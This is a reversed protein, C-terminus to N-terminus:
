VPMLDKLEDDLTLHGNSAIVKNPDATTDLAAMLEPTGSIDPRIVELGGNGDQFIWDRVPSRKGSRRDRQSLGGLIGEYGCGTEVGLLSLADRQADAGTTTGILAADVWNAVGAAVLEMADQSALCVRLNVKRSDRCVREIFAKGSDVLTLAWAEDLMLMKRANPETSYISRTALSAALRLQVVAFREATTWDQRKSGKQPLAIGAMTIVTLLPESGTEPPVYGDEPFILRALPSKARGSLVEAIDSAHEANSGEVHRLAEIVALPNTTQLGRISRVAKGVVVLTSPLDALSAPLITLLIEECLEQREAEAGARADLYAAHSPYAAEQPEPVVRYPSLAGPVADMLDIHRSVAAIAPVTVLDKLRGSPDLLVTPIGRIVADHALKGLLTSKGSGLTGAVVLLGSRERVEMASHPNWFVPRQSTGATRGLYPGDRDGIMAAAQPVATGVHLVPMHRKHADSSRPSGPIFEKALGFQGSPRVLTIAPAYLKALQRARDLAEGETAGSVAYRVWSETRAQLGDYGASVQDELALATQRQRELASPPDLQHELYMATQSRVLALAHNFGKTVKANGLVNFEASIEVPFPLRDPRQLWPEGGEPIDLPQFPGTTQVVVYRDVMEGNVEATVKVSRGYPACTWEVGDTFIPLDTEDLVDVAPPMELPAPMGLAVSRQILYELDASTAPEADMGAAAMVADVEAIEDAMEARRRRSASVKLDVGIFALKEALVMGSLHRQQSLLHDAWGPLANPSAEDLRAAWEAIAYPRATVRLRLRRGGLESYRQAASAILQNGEATSRFSWRAPALLYWATRGEASTTVNGEVKKLAIGSKM